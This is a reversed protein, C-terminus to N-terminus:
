EYIRGMELLNGLFAWGLSYDDFSLENDVLCRAGCELISSPDFNYWRHGTESDIGYFKFEDELQKGEMKHLESIQFELVAITHAYPELDDDPEEMILLWAENFLKPKTEFATKLMYLILELTMNSKKNEEVLVYLSLLYKEMNVSDKDKIIILIQNYFEEITLM